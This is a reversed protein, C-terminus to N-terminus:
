WMARKISGAREVDPYVVTGLAFVRRMWMLSLWLRWMPFIWGRRFLNIGVLVYFVGQKLDRVIETREITDIDSHM